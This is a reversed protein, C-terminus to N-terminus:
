HRMRVHGVDRCLSLEAAIGRIDCTGDDPIGDHLRVIVRAPLHIDEAVAVFHARYRLIDQQLEDLLRRVM